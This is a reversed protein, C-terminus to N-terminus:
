LCFGESSEGSTNFRWQTSGYYLYSDEESFSNRKRACQRRTIPQSCGGFINRQMGVAKPFFLAYSLHPLSVKMSLEM